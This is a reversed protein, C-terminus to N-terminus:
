AGAPTCVLLANGDHYLKEASSRLWWVHGKRSMVRSIPQARDQLPSAMDRILTTPMPAAAGAQYQGAPCILEDHPYISHTPCTGLPGGCLPTGSDRQGAFARQQHVYVRVYDRYTTWAM